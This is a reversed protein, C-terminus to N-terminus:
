LARQNWSDHLSNSVKIDVTQKERSTDVANGLDIHSEDFYTILQNPTSAKCTGIVKVAEVTVGPFELETVDYPPLLDKHLKFLNDM